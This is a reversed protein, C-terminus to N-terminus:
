ALYEEGFNEIERMASITNKIAISMEKLHKLDKSNLPVSDKKRYKLWKDIPKYSGIEFDYIEKTIGEISIIRHEIAQLLLRNDTHTIKDIIFDNEPINNIKITKDEPVNELLHLDILKQGIKVYKEFVIKNKTFPIAPFDTKLFEIYKKRYIPSHLIAYIYALIKEPKPKFDLTKLFANFETTFNPTKSAGNFVDGNQYLYLPALYHGGGIFHLDIPKSSIFVDLFNDKDINRAFCLGLNEKEFHRMTNYTPRALFGTKDHLFTFRNDFPRYQIPKIFKKNFNVSELSEQAKKVTWGKADKIKHKTKIQEISFDKFDNVINELQKKNYQIVFEDKKTIIGINYNGFINTLKWFKNYKNQLSFDKDVFWYYPEVPKLTEWKVKKFKTNELFDLKDASTILKNDLTSFYRVVKKNSPKPLKVFLTISVGVM